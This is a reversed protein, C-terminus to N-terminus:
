KFQSKNLSESLSKIQGTNLNLKIVSNQGEVYIMIKGDEFFINRVDKYEIPNIGLRKKRWNDRARMIAERYSGRIKSQRIKQIFDVSAAPLEDEFKKLEYLTRVDDIVDDDSLLRISESADKLKMRMSVWASDRGLAKAVDQKKMNKTNILEVLADAEEFPSVKERQDNELLQIILTDIDDKARVVCPLHTLEAKIAARYRREGAILTYIGDENKPKVIVPQIIGNEKISKSLSDINKFSKRPQNSDPKVEDFTLYLLQGSQVAEQNMEALKIALLADKKENAQLNDSNLEHLRKRDSLSVKSM